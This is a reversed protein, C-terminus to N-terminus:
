KLAAMQVLPVHFGTRFSHMGVAAFLFPLPEESQSTRAGLVQPELWDMYPHAQPTHFDQERAAHTRSAHFRAQPSPHFYSSSLTTSYGL